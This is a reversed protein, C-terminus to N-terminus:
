QTDGIIQFGAWAGIQDAYNTLVQIQAARLAQALDMDQRLWARHFGYLVEMTAEDPVKWLTAILGDAGAAIMGRGLGEVGDSSVQGRGTECAALIVLRADLRHGALDDIRLKRGALVIYSDKPNPLAAAHTAFLIVDRSPLAALVQDPTAQEGKIQRLSELAYFPLIHGMEGEMKDLSAFTGGTEDVLGPGFRPNVVALLSPAGTRPRARSRERVQQLVGLSPAYTLAHDQVLYHDAGSADKTALAAFPVKFLGRHPVITLSQEPQTSLLDAVPAILLEYLNRLAASVQPIEALQQKPTRQGMLSTLRDVAADLDERGKKDVQLHRLTVSPHGDSGEPAPVVVWALVADDMIFYELLTRRSDQVLRLIQDLSPAGLPRPSTMPIESTGAPSDPVAGKTPSSQMLLDLFARARAAESAALAEGPLNLRVLLRVYDDYFAQGEDLAEMKGKDTALRTRWQDLRQSLFQLTDQVKKPHPATEATDGGKALLRARGALQVQLNGLAGVFGIGLEALDADLDGDGRVRKYEDVDRDLDMLRANLGTDQPAQHFQAFLDVFRVFLDLAEPQGALATRVLSGAQAEAATTASQRSEIIKRLGAFDTADKAVQDAESDLAQQTSGALRSLGDLTRSLVEVRDATARSLPVRTIQLVRSKGGRSVGLSMRTGAAGRIRNSVEEEALGQVESGDISVLRDGVAVGAQEAPMAPRVANVILGNGDPSGEIGIGIGGAGLADRGREFAKSLLGITHAVKHLGESYRERAGRLTRETAKDKGLQDQLDLAKRLGNLFRKYDGAEFASGILDFVAISQALLYKEEEQPDKAAKACGAYYDLAKALVEAADRHKGARAYDYGLHKMADAEADTTPAPFRDAASVGQGGPTEPIAVVARATGAANAGNWVLGILSGDGFGRLVGHDVGGAATQLDMVLLPGDAEGTLTGGAGLTGTVTQDQQRLELAGLDQIRWRGAFRRAGVSESLTKLLAGGQLQGSFEAELRVEKRSGSPLRGQAKLTGAVQDASVQLDLTGTDVLVPADEDPRDPNRTWWTLQRPPPAPSITVVVRGAAATVAVGPEPVAPLETSDVPALSAAGPVAVQPEVGSRASRPGTATQPALRSTNWSGSGPSIDGDTALLLDPATANSHGKPNMLFLTGSRPGFPEADIRGKIKIDYITDVPVGGLYADPESLVREAGPAAEPSLRERRALGLRAAFSSDADPNDTPVLRAQIWEAHRAGQVEAAWVARLAQGDHSPVLLGDLFLVLGHAARGQAHLRLVGDIRRWSGVLDLPQSGRGAPMALSVLVTGDPDLLWRAHSFREGSASGIPFIATINAKTDALKDPSVQPWAPPLVRDDTIAATEYTVLEVELAGAPRSALMALGGMAFVVALSLASFKVISM